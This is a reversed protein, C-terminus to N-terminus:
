RIKNKTNDVLTGMMPDNVGDWIRAIPTLFLLFKKNLRLIDTLYKALYSYFMGYSLDLAIAGVGYTFKSKLSKKEKM